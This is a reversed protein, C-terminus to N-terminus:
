PTTTGGATRDVMSAGDTGDTGGAGERRRTRQLREALYADITDAGLPPSFYPGQAADCGLERLRALQGVSAVGEAISSLELTRALSIIPAAVVASAPREANLEEVFSRDIKVVDVPLRSLYSLSSYGTGFDDIALRVGLAKLDRVTGIAQDSDELLVAESLELCLLSPRLGSARLVTAVSDVLASDVM